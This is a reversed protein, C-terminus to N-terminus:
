DQWPMLNLLYKHFSHFKDGKKELNFSKTEEKEDKM